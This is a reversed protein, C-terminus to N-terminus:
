PSIQQSDLNGNRAFEQGAANQSVALQYENQQNAQGEAIHQDIPLEKAQQEASLFAGDHLNAGHQVKQQEQVEQQAAAALEAKREKDFQVRLM